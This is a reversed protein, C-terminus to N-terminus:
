RRGRTPMAAQGGFAGATRSMSAQSHLPKLRMASARGLSMPEGGSHPGNGNASGAFADVSLAVSAFALVAAAVATTPIKRTATM